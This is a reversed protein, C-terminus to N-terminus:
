QHKTNMEAFTRELKSLETATFRTGGKFVRKYYASNLSSITVGKRSSAHAFLNDALYIGVHTIPAYRRTKFFVLDGFKLEEKTIKEGILSQYYATRPLEIEAVNRYVRRIFASCDISRRSDGSFHYPTGLWSMVEDMLDTKKIGTETFEEEEDEDVFSLWLVKFTEFDVEVDDENELEEIIEGEDGLPQQSEEIQNLASTLNEPQKGELELDGIESDEEDIINTNNDEIKSQITDPELGALSSVEESHEKIFKIAAKKRQQKRYSSRKSSFLEQNSALILMFIVLLTILKNTNM